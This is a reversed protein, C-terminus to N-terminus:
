GHGGGFLGPSGKASGLVGTSHRFVISLLYCLEFRGFSGAESM